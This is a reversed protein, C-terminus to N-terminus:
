LARSIARPVTFRLLLHLPAQSLLVLEAGLSEALATGVQMGHAGSMARTERRRGPADKWGLEVLVLARSRAETRLSVELGHCKTDVLRQALLSSLVQTFRRPDLWVEAVDIQTDDLHITVGQGSYRKELAGILEKLIEVLNCEERMTPVAAHSNVILAQLDDLQAKLAESVNLAQSVARRSAASCAGSEGLLALAEALKGVHSRLGEAHEALLLSKAASAADAREKEARLQLFTLEQGQLAQVGCVLAKTIGDSDILPSGWYLLALHKGKFRLTLEIEFPVGRQVAELYRAHFKAAQVADLADLEALETGLIETEEKEHRALLYKNAFLLRGAPDRISLAKPIADLVGRLVKFGDDASPWTPEGYREAGTVGRGLIHNRKAVEALEVLSKINLKRFLRVKYTSVTRSNLSLERAIDRNAYGDALYGLVTVERASLSALQEAETLNRPDRQHRAPPASPFFTHNRAITEVALSMESLDDLKSVFGSAGAKVCMGAVHESDAATLVLSKTRADHQRLRRLVELGGMRPLRLSLILLDPKLDLTRRLATPGDGVEQVIEHGARELRARVAERMAPQEEALLIRLM